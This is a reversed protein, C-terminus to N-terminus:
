QKCMYIELSITLSELGGASAASENEIEEETEEAADLNAEGNVETGDAEGVNDNAETRDLAEAYANEASVPKQATSWEASLISIAPYNISIDDVLAMLNERTGEATCTIRVTYVGFGSEPLENLTEESSEQGAPENVNESYQYWKLTSEKEPMVISLNNVNLGHNLMLVTVMNEAEHSKLMPYFRQLVQETKERIEQEATSMDGAMSASMDVLVEQEKADAIESELQSNKDSLPKIIFFIFIVALIFAALFSLLKKDSETIMLNM